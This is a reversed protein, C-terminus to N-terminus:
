SEIEPKSNKEKYDCEKSSCKDGKKTEVLLSGCKPCKEGTPKDWLAFNCEPYRSCAYFIKGRRTRKAVIKGEVCKPCYIGLSDTNLNETYRCEPFKSCAYFKGFRGARILIPSGCKPCNKDTPEAAPKQEQVEEYKQTLNQKFPEYFERIVPV